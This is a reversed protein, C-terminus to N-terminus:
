PLVPWNFKYNLPPLEKHQEIYEKLMHGELAYAEPKTTAAHWSIFLTNFPFNSEFDYKKYRWGAMHGSQQAGRACAIFSRVRARLTKSEGIDLIGEVDKGVARNIPKKAAIMYAGPGTPLNSICSHLPEWETWEKWDNLEM